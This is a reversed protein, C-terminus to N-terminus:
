GHRTAWILVRVVARACTCERRRAKSLTPTTVSGRLAVAAVGADIVEMAIM